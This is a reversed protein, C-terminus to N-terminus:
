PQGAQDCVPCPRRTAKREVRAQTRASALTYGCTPCSATWRGDLLHLALGPRDTRIPNSTAM